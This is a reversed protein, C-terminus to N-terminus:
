GYLPDIFTDWQRCQPCKWPSDWSEYGCIRCHFPMDEMELHTFLEHYEALFDVNKVQDVLIKFLYERAAMFGIGRKLVEHLEEIALRSDGRDYYYKALALKTRVYEPNRNLIERYIGEVKELQGQILYAAELNKYTLSAFPLDNQIVDKWTDIAKQVKEQDMYIQGLLLYAQTSRKDLLIATNLRKIAQKVDQEEMFSKGLVVQINALIHQDNSKKLRLVKQHYHFAREWNKEEEYLEALHIHADLHDPELNLIESYAELSRDIFGAKLYDMALETLAEIKNSQSLVPRLIINQHIRIAREVEGKDRFLNGLRLYIEITDSNIKVAKTFEAIAKDTLNAIMYNLGKVYSTNYPSPPPANKRSKGWFYGAMLCLLGGGLYPFYEFYNGFYKTFYGPILEIYEM